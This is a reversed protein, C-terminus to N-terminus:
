KSFQVDVQAVACIVVNRLQFRKNRLCPTPAAVSVQITWGGARVPGRAQKTTPGYLPKM